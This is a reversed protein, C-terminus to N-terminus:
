RFGFWLRFIEEVTMELFPAHYMGYTLFDVAIQGIATRDDRFTRTFQTLEATQNRTVPKVLHGLTIHVYKPAYATRPDLALLRARLSNLEEDHAYAVAVVGGEPKVIIRTFSLVYPKTKPVEACVLPAIDTETQSILIPDGSHVPSFVTSHWHDPRVWQVVGCGVLSDVTETLHILQDRLGGGGDYDSLPWHILTPHSGRHAVADGQENKAFYSQNDYFGQLDIGDTETQDSLEDYLQRRDEEIVPPFVSM